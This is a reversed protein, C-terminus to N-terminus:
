HAIAAANHGPTNGSAAGRTPDTFLVGQDQEWIGNFGSGKPLASKPKAAPTAVPTKAASAASGALPAATLVAGTLAALLISQSVTM